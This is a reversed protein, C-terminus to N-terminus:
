LLNNKMYFFLLVYFLGCDITNACLIHLAYISFSPLDWLTKEEFEQGFFCHVKFARNLGRKFNPNEKSKEKKKKKICNHSTKPFSM